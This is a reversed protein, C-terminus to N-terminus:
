MGGVVQQLHAGASGAGAGEAAELWGQVSGAAAPAALVAMVASGSHSCALQRRCCCCCCCRDFTSAAADAVAM